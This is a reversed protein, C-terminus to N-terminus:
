RFYCELNAPQTIGRRRARRPPTQTAREGARVWPYLALAIVVCPAILSFPVKKSIATNMQTFYNITSPLPFGSLSPSFHNFFGCVFFSGNPSENCVKLVRIKPQLPIQVIISNRNTPTDNAIEGSNSILIGDSFTGYFRIAVIKTCSSRAKPLKVVIHLDAIQDNQTGAYSSHRNHFDRSFVFVNLIWFGL